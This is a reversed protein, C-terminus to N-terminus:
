WNWLFCCFLFASFHISLFDLFMWCFIWRLPWLFSLIRRVYSKQPTQTNRRKEFNFFVPCLISKSCVTFSQSCHRVVVSKYELTECNHPWWLSSTSRTDLEPFGNKLETSVHQRSFHSIDNVGEDCHERSDRFFTKENCCFMKHINHWFHVSRLYTTHTVKHKLETHITRFPVPFAM